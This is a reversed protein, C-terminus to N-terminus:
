KGKQNKIYKEITESSANGVTSVFYSNTWLTPIKLLEPFEKRLRNSTRGKLRKVAKHVSFQPYLSIFIHVHDPMIAVSIIEFNFEEAVEEFLEKARNAVEDTLVAKRRKPCWVVHYNLLYVQNKNTKYEM